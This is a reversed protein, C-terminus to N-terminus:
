RLRSRFRLGAAARLSIEEISGIKEGDDDLLEWGSCGTM